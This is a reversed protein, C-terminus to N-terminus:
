RDGLQQSLAGPLSADSSGPTNVPYRDMSSDTTMRAAQEQVVLPAAEMPLAPASFLNPNGDVDSTFALTPADCLWTPAYDDVLNDTVKRTKGSAVEYVYIEMDGDLNSQYAILADDPSWVANLARGVLDSIRTVGSGDRNMTYIVSNNDRLSRFVVRTGDFSYSPDLDDGQGDSTLRFDLTAINLEYLQWVGGNRDSQFLLHTGDPSWFANVHNATGYTLRTEIGSSADVMYLEWHGDRNSEFAILPGSPSWVPDANQATTQTVRQQLTGDTSAIYVEWNGDRNSSFTIWRRDPSLSPAIDSVDPGIGKTLNPDANPNDLLTGLRFIEWDGTINTSYVLWDVCVPSAVTVPTFPLAASVTPQPQGPTITSPASVTPQVQAPAVGGLWLVNPCGEVPAPIIDDAHGDHGHGESAANYSVTIVTYPNSASGTAHCLTIKDPKDGSQVNGQGQGKDHGQQQLVGQAAGARALFMSTLILIMVVLCLILIGPLKISRSNM